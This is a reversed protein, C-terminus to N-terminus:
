SPLRIIKLPGVLIDDKYNPIEFIARGFEEKMNTDRMWINDLDNSMSRRRMVKDNNRDKKKMYPNFEHPLAYFLAQRM